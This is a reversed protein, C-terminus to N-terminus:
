FYFNNITAKLGLQLNGFLDKKIKVKKTYQVQKLITSFNHNKAASDTHTSMKKVAHVVHV